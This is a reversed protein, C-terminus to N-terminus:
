GQLDFIDVAFDFVFCLSVPRKKSASVLASLMSRWATKMSRSSFLFASPVVRFVLKMVSDISVFSGHEYVLFTEALKVHIAKAISAEVHNKTITGTSSIATQSQSEVSELMGTLMKSKTAFLKCNDDRLKRIDIRGQSKTKVLSMFTLKHRPPPTQFVGIAVDLL